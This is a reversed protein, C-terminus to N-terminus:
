RSEEIAARFRARNVDRMYREAAARLNTLKTELADRSGRLRTAQRELENIRGNLAQATTKFVGLETDVHQYEASLRENEALLEVRQACVHDGHKRHEEANERWADSKAKLREIEAQAATVNGHFQQCAAVQAQAASLQATLELNEAATRVQERALSAAVDLQPQLSEQGAAYGEARAQARGARVADVSELWQAAALPLCIQQCIITEAAEDKPAAARMLEIAARLAPGAGTPCCHQVLLELREIHEKM